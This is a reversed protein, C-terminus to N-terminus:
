RREMLKEVVAELTGQVKVIGVSRVYLTVVGSNLGSNNEVLSVTKPNVWVTTGDQKSLQVLRM